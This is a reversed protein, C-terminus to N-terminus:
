LMFEKLASKLSAHERLLSEYKEAEFEGSSLLEQVVALRDSLCIWITSRTTNSLQM